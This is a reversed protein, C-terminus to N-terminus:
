ANNARGFKLHLGKEASVDMTVAVDGATIHLGSTTSAVAFVALIFLAALLGIPGQYRHLKGKRM